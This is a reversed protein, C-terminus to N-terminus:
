HQQTGPKARPPSDRSLVDHLTALTFEPRLLNDVGRRTTVVLVLAVAPAGIPTGFSWGALRGRGWQGGILFGGKMLSPFVAIPDARELVAQPIRHM